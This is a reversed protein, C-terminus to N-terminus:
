LYFLVGFKFSPLTARLEPDQIRIVATQNQGGSQYNNTVESAGHITTWFYSLGARIFIVFRRASGIEVGLQANVYNYGVDKLLPRMETPVGASQDAVWTMDSDFYHGVEVNLTPDFVWHFPAIGAGAQVGFGFYNWSGGGSLRLWDLPRVVLNVVAGDPVGAAASIGLHPFSPKAEEPQAEQALALTPVLALAVLLRRM